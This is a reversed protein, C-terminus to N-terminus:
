AASSNTWAVIDGLVKGLATNYAAVIAAVRNREAPARAEFIREAVAARDRVLVARIRILVVPDRGEGYRTEFNRVDLRLALNAHAPEGRPILRVRGPASDFAASVAEDFLAESPAVWRTEAIYSARDGTITLIRDGAAERQFLGGARFVGIADPRDPAEAVPVGFRYLQSAKVKPLLSICGSLSFALLGAFALKLLAPRTM